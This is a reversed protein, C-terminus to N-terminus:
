LLFFYIIFATIPLTHVYVQNHIFFITVIGHAVQMVFETQTRATLLHLDKSPAPSSCINVMLFFTNKDLTIRMAKSYVFCFSNTQKTHSYCLIQM